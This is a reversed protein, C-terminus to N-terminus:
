WVKRGRTEKKEACQRILESASGKCQTPFQHSLISLHRTGDWAHSEFSNKRSHPSIKRRHMLMLQASVPELKAHDL